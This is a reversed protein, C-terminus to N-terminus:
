IEIEMKAGRYSIERMRKPREQNLGVEATTGRYQIKITGQQQELQSTRKDSLESLPCTAGRYHIIPDKM